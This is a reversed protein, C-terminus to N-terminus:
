KDQGELEIEPLIVIGYQREDNKESSEEKLIKYLKEGASIVETIKVGDDSTSRMIETLTELVETKTAIKSKRPM